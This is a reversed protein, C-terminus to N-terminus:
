RTSIGPVAFLKAPFVENLAIKQFKKEESYVAFGNFSQAGFTEAVSGMLFSGIPTVGAFVFAYLSMVRGRLGDPVVLQLCVFQMDSECLIAKQRDM